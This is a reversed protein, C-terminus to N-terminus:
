EYELMRKSLYYIAREKRSDDLQALMCGLVMDSVLLYLLFHRGPIPPVLVPPSLFCEKIKEFARQCDDNWIIPQNKRLLHFIPECIDTLKTIFHNVYQLRGLFGRIEKETRPTPMDLIARIKEPDVEIGRESVIHGLLKRSTVGFTYKKPNLRLKFRRIREFFRQLTALHNERDRSKVIMDDVYVEVDRHMMYHFLTTADRQHTAGVNKLGFPM